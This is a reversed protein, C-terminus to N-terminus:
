RTFPSAQLLQEASVDVAYHIGQDPGVAQDFVLITRDLWVLREFPRGPAFSAVQLERPAAHAGGRVVLRCRPECPIFVRRPREPNSLGASAALDPARVAALVRRPPGSGEYRWPQNIDTTHRHPDPFLPQWEVQLSTEAADRLCGAAGCAWMALLLQVALRSM